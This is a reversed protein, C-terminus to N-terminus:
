SGKAKTSSLPPGANIEVRAWMGDILRGDINDVEVWLPLVRESSELIPSLRVIRGEVVTDPYAAFTVRVPQGIAVHDSDNQFVYGKVWVTSGDHIEFLTSESDVVQGPVANFDAISGALPARIQVSRLLTLDCAASTLDASLVQEAEDETIGIMSLTRLLSNREASLVSEDTQLKWLENRSSVNQEALPAIRAIRESTWSLQVDTQILEGQLNRLELSEVEALVQGSEVPQSHAVLIRGIRGEIRSGAFVKRDTPVEVVGQIVISKHDTPHEAFEPVTADGAAAATPVGAVDLRVEDTKTGGFLSFLIHNGTIAVQDGPFLGDLVEVQKHNRLGLRVLQRIFKGEGRNLLVYEDGDDCIVAETAVVIAEHSKEVEIAMRGFMGPRILRSPNKLVMVVDRTRRREDIKLRLSDITGSFTEGPLSKFTVMAPQGVDVQAVDGELVSGIAWLASPDVIHFLHETTKVQEGIRVDADAVTGAIPSVISFRALPRRSRRIEDLVAQELGLARLKCLAVELKASKERVAAEADAAERGAIVGQAALSSRRRLQDHALSLEADAQLMALQLSELELSEIRALEQGVAVEDGPRVLVNTVRGPVQTTVMVQQYWPLEVRANCEITRALNALTVKSTALDIATRAGESLLLENGVVTLGKTPLAAHGEHATACPAVILAASLLAWLRWVHM